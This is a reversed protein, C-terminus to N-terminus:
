QPGPAEPCFRPQCPNYPKRSLLRAERHHSREPPQPLCAPVAEEAGQLSCGPAPPGETQGGQRGPTRLCPGQQASTSIYRDSISYLCSQMESDAAMQGPALDSPLLLPATEPPWWLSARTGTHCVANHPSRPHYFHIVFRFVRGLEPKMERHCSNTKGPHVGM